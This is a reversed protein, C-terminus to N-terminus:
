EDDASWKAVFPTAQQELEAIAGRRTRHGTTLLKLHRVGAQVHILYAIWPGAVRPLAVSCARAREAV